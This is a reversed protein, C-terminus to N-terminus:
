RATRRRREGDEVRERDDDPLPGPLQGQQPDDPRAAALHEARHEALRGDDPEDGRHDAEAEAHQGREPELRQQAPEPDRQRRSRQHELRAGDHDPRATPTPTVTTAPSRGPGCRRACGAPRRARRGGPGAAVGRQRRRNTQRCPGPGPRARDHQGDPQGLRGDREHADARHADEDADGHQGRRDGPRQRAHDATRQGPQEAFRALEAPLVGHAAGPAGGLGGDASMTPRARTAAIDTNPAESDLDAVLLTSWAILASRM